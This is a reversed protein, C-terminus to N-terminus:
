LVEPKEEQEVIVIDLTGLKRRHLGHSALHEEQHEKLWTSVDVDGPLACGCVLLNVSKGTEQDELTFAVPNPPAPDPESFLVHPFLCSTESQPSTLLRRISEALNSTNPNQSM